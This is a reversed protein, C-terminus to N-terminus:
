NASQIPISPKLELGKAPDVWLWAAAGLIGLVAAVSFSAEWGFRSAVLPTLSAAVAGGIQGGMNM